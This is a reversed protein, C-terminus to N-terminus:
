EQEGMGQPLYEGVIPQRYSYSNPINPLINVILIKRNKPGIM